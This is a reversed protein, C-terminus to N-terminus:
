LTLSKMGTERETVQHQLTNNDEPERRVRRYKYQYKLETAWVTTVCSWIDKFPLINVEPVSHWVKLCIHTNVQSIQSVEHDLRSIIFFSFQTCSASIFREEAQYITSPMLM